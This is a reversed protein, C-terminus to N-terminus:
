QLRERAVEMVGLASIPVFVVQARDRSAIAEFATEVAKRADDTHMDILDLMVLGGIDRLRLTRAVLEAAAINVRLAVEEGDEGAGMATRGANVDIATLAETHQIVIHAGSLEPGLFIRETGMMTEIVKDVELAKFVPEAGQHLVVRNIIEQSAGTRLLDDVITKYSEETDVTLKAVREGFLDRVLVQERSAAQLLRRPPPPRLTLEAHRIARESEEVITDWDEALCGIDLKLTDQNVGAAETRMILASGKPCVTAGVDKVYKRARGMLKRSVYVGEGDPCLVVNRGPLTPRATVRPGKYGSGLRTVQVVVPQG